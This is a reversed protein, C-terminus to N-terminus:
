FSGINPDCKEKCEGGPLLFPDARVLIIDEGIKEINCWPIVIDKKGKGFIGGACGVIIATIKGTCIDFEVETIFGLRKGDSINVVEKERFNDTKCQKM